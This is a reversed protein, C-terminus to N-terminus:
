PLNRYQQIKQRAEIVYISSPHNKLLRTLLDIGERTKALKELMLSGALYISRDINTEYSYKSITSTLLEVADAYKARDILIKAKLNVAEVVLYSNAARTLTDLYNLCEDFRQQDFRLMATAFTKLEKQTSDIESWAEYLHISLEIADNAILKSTSAKLIDIQSKAWEFEHQYFAIKAKRFKAESGLPTDKQQREIKAYILAADWLKDSTLYIDARQMEIQTKQQSNLGRLADLRDLLSMAENTKGAIHTLLETYKLVMDFTAVSIGFRNIAQQFFDLTQATSEPSFDIRNKIRQHLVDMKRVYAEFYFPNQEGTAIIDDLAKLSTQYDNAELASTALPLLREGVQKKRLDLARAQIYAKAFNNSQLYNWLLLESFVERNPYEQIKVLLRNELLDLLSKDTDTYIANNLRNQVMQLFADSQVLLNLYIDIMKEHNRMLYYLYALEQDFSYGLNKKQAELYIKEAKDFERLSIFRNAITTTKNRDSLAENISEQYIKEAKKLEGCTRYANGIDVLLDPQTKILRRYKSAVKDIEKAKRQEALVQLYYQVFVRDERKQLLEQLVIEAKEWERNRMYQLALTLEQQALTIQAVSGLGILFLAIYFFKKM